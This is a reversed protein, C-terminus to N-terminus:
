TTTQMAEAPRRSQARHRDSSRQAAPKTTPDRKAPCDRCWWGWKEPHGRGDGGEVYLLTRHQGTTRQQLHRAMRPKRTM